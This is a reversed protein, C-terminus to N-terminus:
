MKALPLYWMKQSLERAVAAMLHIARDSSLQDPDTVPSSHVEQSGWRFQCFVRDATHLEQM